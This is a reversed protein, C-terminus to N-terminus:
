GIGNGQNLRKRDRAALASKAAEYADRTPPKTQAKRAGTSIAWGEWAARFYAFGTQWFEAETWHLVGGAFKM